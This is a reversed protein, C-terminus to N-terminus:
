LTAIISSSCAGVITGCSMGIFCWGKGGCASSVMMSQMAQCWHQATRMHLFAPLCLVESAAGCRLVAKSLCEQDMTNKDLRMHAMLAKQLATSIQPGASSGSRALLALQARNGQSHAWMLVTMVPICTAQKSCM